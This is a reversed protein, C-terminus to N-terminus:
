WSSANARIWSNTAICVYIHTSDYAIQGAVGASSATAPASSSAPQRFSLSGAGDTSMFSNATGDAKPLGFAYNASVASQASLGIYKGNDSYYLAGGVVNV